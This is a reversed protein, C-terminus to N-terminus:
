DEHQLGWATQWSAAPLHELEVWVAIWTKEGKHLLYLDTRYGPYLVQDIGNMQELMVIGRKEVCAMQVFSPTHPSGHAPSEGHQEGLVPSQLHSKDGGRSRLTEHSSLNQPRAASSFLRLLARGSSPDKYVSCPFGLAQILCIYTWHQSMTSGLNPVQMPNPYQRITAPVIHGTDCYFRFGVLHWPHVFDTGSALSAPPSHYDTHDQVVFFQVPVM